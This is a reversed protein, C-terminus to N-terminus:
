SSSAHLYKTPRHVRLKFAKPSLSSQRRLVNRAAMTVHRGVLLLVLLAM